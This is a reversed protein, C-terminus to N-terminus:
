SYIARLSRWTQLDIRDNGIRRRGRAGNVFWSVYTLLGNLLLINTPFLRLLSVDPDSKGTKSARPSGSESHCLIVFVKIAKGDLLGPL